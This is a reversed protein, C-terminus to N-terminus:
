NPQLLRPIVNGNVMRQTGIENFRYTLFHILMSVFENICDAAIELKNEIDNGPDEVPAIFVDFAQETVYEPLHEQDNLVLAITNKTKMDPKLLVVIDQSIDILCRQQILKVVDPHMDTRKSDPERVGAGVITMNPFYSKIMAQGIKSRGVGEEDIVVININNITIKSM